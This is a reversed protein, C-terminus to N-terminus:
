VRDGFVPTASWPWCEYRRRFRRPLDMEGGCGAHIRLGSSASCHLKWILQGRTHDGFNTQSLTRSRTAVLDPEAWYRVRLTM